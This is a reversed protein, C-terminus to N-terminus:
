FRHRVELCRRVAEAVAGEVVRAEERGDGCPEPLYVVGQRGSPEDTVTLILDGRFRFLGATAGPLHAHALANLRDAAKRTLPPAYFGAPRKGFRAAISRLWGATM